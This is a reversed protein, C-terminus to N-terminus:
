VGNRKCGGNVEWDILWDVGIRRWCRHEYLLILMNCVFTNFVDSMIEM